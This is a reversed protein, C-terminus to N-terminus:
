VSNIRVHIHICNTSRSCQYSGEVNNYQTVFSSVEISIKLSKSVESIINNEKAENIHTHKLHETAISEIIKKFRTKTVKM